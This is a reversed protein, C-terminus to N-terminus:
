RRGNISTARQRRIWIGFHPEAKRKEPTSTTEIHPKTVGKSQCLTSHDFHEIYQPCM